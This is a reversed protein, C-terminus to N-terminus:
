GIPEPADGFRRHLGLLRGAAAIIPFAFRRVAAPVETMEFETRYRHGLYAGDFPGPRDGGKRRM